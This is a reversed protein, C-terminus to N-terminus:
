GPPWGILQVFGNRRLFRRANSCFIGAPQRQSLIEASKYAAFANAYDDGDSGLMSQGM